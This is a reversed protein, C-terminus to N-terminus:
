KLGKGPDQPGFGFTEEVLKRTAPDLAAFKTRIESSVKELEARAEALEGEKTAVKALAQEYKQLLSIVQRLPTTKESGRNSSARSKRVSDGKSSNYSISSGM